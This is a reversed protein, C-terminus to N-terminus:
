VTHLYLRWGKDPHHMLRRQHWCYCDFEPDYAWTWFPLKLVFVYRGEGWDLLAWCLHKPFAGNMCRKKAKSHFWEYIRSM